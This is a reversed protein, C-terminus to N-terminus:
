GLGGDVCLAFSRQIFVADTDVVRLMESNSGNIRVDLFRQGYWQEKYREPNDVGDLEEETYVSGDNSWKGDEYFLYATM